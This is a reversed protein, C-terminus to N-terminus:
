ASRGVITEILGILTGFRVDQFDEHSFRIGFKEEAESVFSVFTFSDVWAEAFYNATIRRSLVDESQGTQKAFWALVFSTVDQRDASM